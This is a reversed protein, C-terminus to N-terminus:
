PAGRAYHVMPADVYELVKELGSGLAVQYANELIASREPATLPAVPAITTTVPIAHRDFCALFGECTPFALQFLGVQLAIDPPPPIALYSKMEYFRSKGDWYDPQAYVGVRGDIVILRSKPRILGFLESKRFARLVGAIEEVMRARDEPSPVLAAEELQQELVDVALANAATATPRRGQRFEYSFHSLASDIATGTAMGLEDRETVPRPYTARVVEHAAVARITTM